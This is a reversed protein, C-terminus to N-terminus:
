VLPMPHGAQIGRLIGAASYAALIRKFPSLSTYTVARLTHFLLAASYELDFNPDNAPARRSDYLDAATKRVEV